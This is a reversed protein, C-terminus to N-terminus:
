QMDDLKFSEIKGQYPLKGQQNSGIFVANSSDFDAENAVPLEVSKDDVSLVIKGPIEWQIVVKAAKDAPLGASAPTRYWKKASRDFYRVHLRNRQSIVNFVDGKGYVIFLMGLGPNGGRVVAELRGKGGPFAAAPIRIGSAAACNFGDAAINAADVSKVPDNKSGSQDTLAKEAPLTFNFDVLTEAEVAAITGCMLLALFTKKM